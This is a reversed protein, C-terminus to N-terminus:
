GLILLWLFGSVLCGLWFQWRSAGAAPRLYLLAPDCVCGTVLILICLVLDFCGVVCILLVWWCSVVWGFGFNGCIGFWLVWFGDAFRDALGVSAYSRLRFWGACDAEDLDCCFRLKRCGCSIALDLWCM